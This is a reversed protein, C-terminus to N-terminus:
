PALRAAVAIWEADDSYATGSVDAFHGITELGAAAFEETVTAVSYCQNWNYLAFTREAEIVTYKDCLLGESEYVFTQSFVHHPRSSWFGGAAHFAYSSQERARHLQRMSAVDLWLIGDEGLLARCTRLLRKRQTPSLVSFDGYVMSVLDFTEPTSFDLYDELLYCIDLGERRASDRAYRVSRESIDIGTVQAGRRALRVAWLGPGCGLDCIRTSTGIAFYAAMWEVCLDIYEPRRSAADVAPDLHAQLMGKSIHLDNWLRPTTYEQFPEPRQAIDELEAFIHMARKAKTM